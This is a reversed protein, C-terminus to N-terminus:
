VGLAAPLANMLTSGSVGTYNILTVLLRQVHLSPWHRGAWISQPPLEHHRTTGVITRVTPACEDLLGVCGPDAAIVKGLTISFFTMIHTGVRKLEALWFGGSWRFM